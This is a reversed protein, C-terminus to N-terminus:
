ESSRRDFGQQELYDESLQEGEDSDDSDDRDDGDEHGDREDGEDDAQEGRPGLRRSLAFELAVVTALFDEGHADALVTNVLPQAWAAVTVAAAVEQWPAFEGPYQGLLDAVTHHGGAPFEFAGHFVPAVLVPDLGILPLLAKLQSRKDKLRAQLVDRGDSDFRLDDLDARYSEDLEFFYDSLKM